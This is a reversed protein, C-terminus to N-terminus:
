AKAGSFVGRRVELHSLTSRGVSFISFEMAMLTRSRSTVLSTDEYANEIIPQFTGDGNGLSVFFKGRM